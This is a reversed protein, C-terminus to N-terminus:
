VWGLFRRPDGPGLVGGAAVHALGEIAPTLLSRAAEPAATIRASASSMASALAAQDLLALYFMMQRWAYAAKKRRIFRTHHESRGPPLPRALDAICGDLCQGALAAFSPELEGRLGIRDVLVALNHTTTIQIQEIIRGNRAVSWNTENAVGALSRCLAILQPATRARGPHTPTPAYRAIEGYDVGYYRAYISGGVLTGAIKAAELFKATVEDMFIDAALEETFPVTLGAGRALTDLEKVMRNPVITAPFRTLTLRALMRLLEGAVKRSGESSARQSATARVWPLEYYKVQASLDTLLLSRRGRFSRYGTALLRGLDADATSVAIASGTLQPIVTALVESSGIIGRDLLVEIPAAHARELMAGFGERWPAASADTFPMGQPVGFRRSEDATVPALLPATDTIGGGEPHGTLRAALVPALDAPGRSSVRAIETRRLAALSPDGPLGRKAAIQALIARTFGVDRGTLQEPREVALRVARRLRALNSKIRDPRRCRQHSQRLATIEALMDKARQHWGNPYIRFPWGGEVLSKADAGTALRPPAGGVTEHVLAVLRDEIPHWISITERMAIIQDPTRMDLLRRIVAGVTEVRVLGEHAGAGDYPAPYFRLRDMWPEIEALLDRAAAPEGHEMLWVVVLLCAEEPVAIRYRGSRLMASLEARGAETLYYANLRPRLGADTAIGHRVALMTEHPQHPGGAVLEGTAFGGKAVELTVWAPTDKVPTRSGPTVGGGLMRDILTRWTSAKQVARARTAADPHTAATELARMLQGVVYGPNVRWQRTEDSESM